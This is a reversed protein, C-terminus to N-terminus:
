IKKEKAESQTSTKHSYSVKLYIDLTTPLFDATTNNGCPYLFLGKIGWKSNQTLSSFHFFLLASGTFLFTHKHKVKISHPPCHFHHLQTGKFIWLM